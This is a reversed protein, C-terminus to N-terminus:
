PPSRRTRHARATALLSEVVVGFQRAAGALDDDALLIHHTFCVDEDDIAEVAVQACLMGRAMLHDVLARLAPVSCETPAGDSIMVLLVTSRRSQRALGALHQLAAADNNGGGAELSTVACRRADGADTITDDTFGIFRAEIDPLDRVAEALLVGFHRARELNEGEMSGSCDIAVGVFVDPAPAHRRATLLRPDGKLVAGVLASRDLRRGSLRRREVVLGTGIRLLSERLIRAPRRVLRAIERHSAIDVTLREIREIEDFATDDDVNVAGGPAGAGRGVPRRPGRVRQRQQRERAERESAVPDVGDAALEDATADTLRHFDFADLVRADDGFIERLRRAIALLESMSSARFRQAPFLALAADVKPDVVGDRRGMRLARMFRSFSSGRRALTSLATGVDVIVADPRRAVGLARASLVALARPGLSTLLTDLGLEKHMHQFAWAALTKLPAGWREPDMARLRRELHEDAVLNLIQHLREQQATNWIARADADAHFRHHGLEHLILGRVIAEGDREGTLLPLPNVCVRRSGLRTHGLGDAIFSIRWLGGCIAMAERQGERVVRDLLATPSTDTLTSSTPARTTPPLLRLWGKLDAVAVASRLAETVLPARRAAPLTRSLSWLTTAAVQGDCLAEALVAAREDDNATARWAAEDAGGAALIALAATRVPPTTTTTTTTAQATKAPQMLRGLELLPARRPDDALLLDGRAVDEFLRRLVGDHLWGMVTRDRRAHGAAVVAVLRDLLLLSWPGQTVLVLDLLARLGGPVADCEQRLRRAGADRHGDDDVDGAVLLAAVLPLFVGPCRHRLVRTVVAIDDVNLADGATPWALALARAVRHPPDHSALVAAAAMAGRPPADGHDARTLVADAVGRIRTVGSRALIHELVVDWRGGTTADDLPEAPADRRALALLTSSSPALLAARLQAPDWVSPAEHLAIDLALTRVSTPLGDLIAALDPLATCRCVAGVVARAGPMSSPTTHTLAQRVLGARTPIGCREVCATLARLRRHRLQEREEDDEVVDDDPARDDGGDDDPAEIAAGPIRAATGPWREELADLLTLAEHPAAAIVRRWADVDCVVDDGLSRIASGIGGIVARWAVRDPTGDPPLVLLTPDPEVVFAAALAGMPLGALLAAWPREACLWLAGAIVAVDPHQGDHRTLLGSAKLDADVRASRGRLGLRPLALLAARRAERPIADWALLASSGVLGLALLTPELGGRLAAVVAVAVALRDRDTGDLVGARAARRLGRVLERRLPTDNAALGIVDVLTDDGAAATARELTAVDAVGGSARGAPLVRLLLPTRGDWPAAALLASATADDVVGRRRAKLVAPVISPDEHVRAMTQARAADAVTRDEDALLEVLLPASLAPCAIALGRVDARPHMAAHVLRLEQGPTKASVALAAVAAERVRRSRDDLAAVLAEISRRGTAGALRACAALRADVGDAADPEMLVRCAGVLTDPAGSV